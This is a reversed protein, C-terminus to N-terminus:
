GVVRMPNSKTPHLLNCTTFGVKNPKTTLCQKRGFDDRDGHRSLKKRLVYKKSNVYLTRMDKRMKAMEFNEESETM